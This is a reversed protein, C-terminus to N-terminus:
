KGPVTLTLRPDKVDPFSRTIAFRFPAGALLRLRVAARDTLARGAPRFRDALFFDAVARRTTEPAALRFVAAFRLTRVATALRLGATRFFVPTLFDATRADFGGDRL